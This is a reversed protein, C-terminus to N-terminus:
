LDKRRFLICAFTFALAAYSMAYTLAAAVDRWPVTGTYLVREFDLIQLNPVLYYLMTVASQGSGGLGESLKLLEEAGNGVLYVGLTFLSTTLGNSAVQAFLLAYALLVLNKLVVTPVLWLVVWRVSELHTLFLDGALVILAGVVALFFVMVLLGLAKGSLYGTRGIPLTLHNYVIRRERERYVNNVAYIATQLCLLVDVSMWGLREVIYNELGWPTSGMLVFVGTLFTMGALFGLYIHDRMSERVTYIALALM